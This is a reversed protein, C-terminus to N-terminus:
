KKTRLTLKRSLHDSTSAKQASKAAKTLLCLAQLAMASGVYYYGVTKSKVRVPNVKKHM